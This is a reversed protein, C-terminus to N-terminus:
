CCGAALSVGGGGEWVCVRDARKQCAAAASAERLQAPTLLIGVGNAKAVFQHLDVGTAGPEVMKAYLERCAKFGAAM